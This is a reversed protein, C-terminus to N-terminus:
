QGWPAWGSRQYIAYAAEANVRPDYLQEPSTVGVAALTRQNMKFYIQFLGYCCWNRVTPVLNSERKAIRVAQDAQDPPWISRIIAEVDAKSYTNAPPAPAAEATTTTTAQPKPPAAATTVPAKTSPPSTSKTAATTAPAKKAATTAPTTATKRAATTAPTTATKKAATSPAATSAATLDGSAVAAASASTSAPSSAPVFTAAASSPSGSPASSSASTAAAAATTASLLPDAGVAAGPLGGSRVVNTGSGRIIGAIPILLLFAVVMLVLRATLPRREM